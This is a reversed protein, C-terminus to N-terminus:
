RPIVVIVLESTGLRVEEPALAEPVVLQKATGAAPKFDESQVLGRVAVCGGEDIRITSESDRINITPVTAQNGSAAPFSAIRLSPRLTLDILPKAYGRPEIGLLLGYEQWSMVSTGGVTAPVSFQTSAAFRVPVGATTGLDSAFLVRASGNGILTRLQALTAPALPTTAPGTAPTLGISSLADKRISLVQVTFNYDHAPAVTAAQSAGVVVLGNTNITEASAASNDGAPRLAMKITGIAAAHTLTIAQSSSVCLTMSTLGGSGATGKADTKTGVALIPVNELITRTVPDVNQSPSFTALVDVADGPQPFGAVAITESIAVTLARMGPPIQYALGGATAKADLKGRVIMEGEALPTLCLKGTAEAIDTIANPLLFERPIAKTGLMDASLVTKAPIAKLAIVVQTTAFRGGTTQSGNLYFYVAGTVIAALLLPVLIYRVRFGGM